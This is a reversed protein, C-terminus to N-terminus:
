EYGTYQNTNRTASSMFVYYQYRLVNDTLYVYFM